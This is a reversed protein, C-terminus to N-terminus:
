TLFVTIPFTGYRYMDTVNVINNTDIIKGLVKGNGYVTDIEVLNGDFITLENDNKARYDSIAHTVINEPLKYKSLLRASTFADKLIDPLNESIDSLTYATLRDDTFYAENDTNDISYINSSIKSKFKNSPSIVGPSAVMQGALIRPIFKKTKFINSVTSGTSGTSDSSDVRGKFPNFNSSVESVQSMQSVPSTYSSIENLKKQLLNRQKLILPRTNTDAKVLAKNLEDLKIELIHQDNLDKFLNDMKDLLEKKKAEDLLQDIEELYKDFMGPKNEGKGRQVTNNNKEIFRIVTKPIDLHRDKITKLLKDKQKLSIKGNAKSTISLLHKIIFCYRGKWKHLDETYGSQELAMKCLIQSHGRCINLLKPNKECAQALTKLNITFM